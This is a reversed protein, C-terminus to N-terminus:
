GIGVGAQVDSFGSGLFIGVCFVNALREVMGIWFFILQFVSLWSVMAIDNTVDDWWGQWVVGYAEM